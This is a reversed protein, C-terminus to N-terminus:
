HFILITKYNVRRHYVIIYRMSEYAGKQCLWAWQSQGKKPPHNTPRTFRRMGMRPFRDADSMRPHIHEVFKAQCGAGFDALIGGHNGVAKGKIKVKVKPVAKIKPRRGPYLNSKPSLQVLNCSRFGHTSLFGVGAKETKLARRV